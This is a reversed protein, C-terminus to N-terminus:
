EKRPGYWIDRRNSSLEFYGNVHVPLGTRVPLPLFCFAQGRLQRSASSLEAQGSAAGEPLPCAVGVWPVLGRGELQKSLAMDLAAGGALASSVLWSETATAGDGSTTAFNVRSCSSPLEATTAAALARSLSRRDGGDRQTFKLVLEQPHM